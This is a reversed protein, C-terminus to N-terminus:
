PKEVILSSLEGVNKKKGVYKLREPFERRLFKSEVVQFGTGEALFELVEPHLQHFYSPYKDLYGEPLHEGLTTVDEVWGPYFPQIFKFRKFQAHLTDYRSEYGPYLNAYPSIATLYFRGGSPLKEFAWSFLDELQPGSMYMAVSFMGIDVIEFGRENEHLRDITAGDRARDLPFQAQFTNFQSDYKSAEALRGEAIAAQEESRDAYFYYGGRRVIELGLDGYAGGIELVVPQRRFFTGPQRPPSPQAREVAREIFAKQTNNFQTEAFGFKNLTPRRGDGDVQPLQQLQPQMALLAAMALERSCM